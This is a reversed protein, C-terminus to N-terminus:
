LAPTMNVDQQDEESLDSSSINYCGMSLPTDLLLEPPTFLLTAFPFPYSDEDSTGGATVKM